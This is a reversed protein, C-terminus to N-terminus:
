CMTPSSFTSTRPMLARFKEATVEFAKEKEVIDIAPTVTFGLDRRWFPEMDLLSRYSPAQLFGTQFDHFLRDIQNRLTEFPQWDTAQGALYGTSSRYQHTVQQCTGGHCYEKQPNSPELLMYTQRM